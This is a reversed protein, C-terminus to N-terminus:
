PEQNVTPRGALTKQVLKLENQVTASAAEVRGNFSRLQILSSSRAQEATLAALARTSQILAKASGAVAPPFPFRALSTDLGNESGRGATRRITNRM